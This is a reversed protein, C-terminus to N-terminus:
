ARTGTFTANGMAGLKVDGSISDGDLTASFELTMAMPATISAKWTLADGDVTGDELDIDGQPGSLKGSLAGGDTTLTMTGNQAGMPTNMTTTWTGDASM